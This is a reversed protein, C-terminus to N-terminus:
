KQTVHMRSCNCCMKACSLSASRNQPMMWIFPVEFALERNEWDSRPATLNSSYSLALTGKESSLFWWSCNVLRTLKHGTLSYAELPCKTRDRHWVKLSHKCKPMKCDHAYSRCRLHTKQAMIGLPLREAITAWFTAPAEKACGILFRM